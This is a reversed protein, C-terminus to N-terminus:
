VTYKRILKLFDSCSTKKETTVYYDLIMLTIIVIQKYSFFIAVISVEEGDTEELLPFIDPPYMAKTVINDMKTTAAIIANITIPVFLVLLPLLLGSSMTTSTTGVRLPWTKASVPLVVVFLLTDPFTDGLRPLWCARAIANALFLGVVEAGEEDVLIGGDDEATGLRKTGVATGVRKAGPVVVEEVLIGVDEPVQFTSLATFRALSLWSM